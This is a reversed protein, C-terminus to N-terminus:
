PTEWRGAGIHERLQEDTLSLLKRLRRRVYPGVRSGSCALYLSQRSVGAAKAASILTKHQALILARLPLIRDAVPMADGMAPAGTADRPRM